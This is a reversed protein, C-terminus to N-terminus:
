ARRKPALALDGDVYPALVGGPSRLQRDREDRVRGRAQSLAVQACGSVSAGLHPCSRAHAPRHAGRPLATYSPAPPAADLPDVADGRGSMDSRPARAPTVRWLTDSASCQSVSLEYSGAM